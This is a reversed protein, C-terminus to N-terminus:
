DRLLATVMNGDYVPRGSKDFTKDTNKDYWGLTQGSTDQAFIRTGQEWIQGVTEGSANKILRKM